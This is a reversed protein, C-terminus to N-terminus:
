INIPMSFQKNHFEILEGESSESDRDAMSKQFQIAAEVAETVSTFEALIADGAEHIKSGNHVAIIETLLNLSTNLQQHTQDENEGTLRSYGAVDAHLIAALQRKM